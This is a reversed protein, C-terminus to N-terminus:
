GGESHGAPRDGHGTLAGGRLLYWAMMMGRYPHDESSVSGMGVCVKDWLSGRGNLRLDSLQNSTWAWQSESFECGRVSRCQKRTLQQVIDGMAQGM